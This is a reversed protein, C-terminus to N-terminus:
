KGHSYIEVSHFIDPLIWVISKLLDYIFISSIEKSHIKM